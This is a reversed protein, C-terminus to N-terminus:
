EQEGADDKLEQLVKRTETTDLECEGASEAADKLMAVPLVIPLKAVNVATRVLQAFFEM